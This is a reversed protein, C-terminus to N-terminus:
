ENFFLKCYVIGDTIVDLGWVLVMEEKTRKKNIVHTTSPM